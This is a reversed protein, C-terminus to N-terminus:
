ANESTRRVAAGRALQEDLSAAPDAIRAKGSKHRRITDARRPCRDRSTEKWPIELEKFAGRGARPKSQVRTYRRTGFRAALAANTPFEKFAPATFRFASRLNAHPLRWHKLFEVFLNTVAV